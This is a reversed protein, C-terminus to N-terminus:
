SRADPIALRGAVRPHAPDTIDVSALGEPTTVFAYRFQVGIGTANKLEPISAVIRPALPKDVDVVVLGGTAGIFVWRGAVYISRAGNLAGDPNFTVARTLFNNSPNADALTTVDILILGEERDAVYVYKYLPHIPQEQNEPIFQTQR